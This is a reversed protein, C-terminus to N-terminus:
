IKRRRWRSGRGAGTRELWPAAKLDSLAQQRTVSHDVADLYDAISFDNRRSALRELIARRTEADYAGVTKKTVPDVIPREQGVFGWRAYPKLNRGLKRAARRSGPSETGLFFREAPSVRGFGMSVYDVFYQFEPDPSALRAFTLAVLLSQPYRSGALEHRLRLPNLEQYHAPLWQVLVSLLRADYRLMEGTLVVLQELSEPEYPWPRREGVTSAGVKALEHYLRALEDETPPHLLRAGSV